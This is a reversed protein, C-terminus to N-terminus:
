ELPPLAATAEAAVEIARDIDDDTHETSVYWIDRAMQKTYVGRERLERKWEMIRSQDAQWYERLDHFPGPGFAVSFVTTSGQVRGGAPEVIERIGDRLRHSLRSMEDYVGPASLVKIVARVAALCLPNSNYTGGHFVRRDSIRDMFAHSGGVASIPFGGSLAKGMCTLDPTVGLLGQAGRLSARFGTQIEDFILAAGYEDCLARLGELYGARPEIVGCNYLIPETLIAAIENGRERMLDEVVGLDNWPLVIMDAYTSPPQGLSMPVTNPRHRPGAQEPSPMQSISVQDSWGHYAGEFKVILDRGTTARAIRMAALVVETGSQAFRVLEFSPILEVLQETVELELEHCGGFVTGRQLQETVAETIAPHSHGLVLPGFALLFDVYENGDIDWFRSGKGHSFFIPHPLALARENSGVGGPIVRKATEFRQASSAISRVESRIM